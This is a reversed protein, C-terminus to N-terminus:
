TPPSWFRTEPSTWLPSWARHAAVPISAPCPASVTLNPNSVAVAYKQPQGAPGVPNIATVVPRYTNGCGAIAALFFATTLGAACRAASRLPQRSPQRTTGPRTIGEAEIRALHLVAGAHHQHQSHELNSQLDSRLHAPPHVLFYPNLSCCPPLFRNGLPPISQLRPQQHPYHSRQQNPHAVKHQLGVKEPAVGPEM